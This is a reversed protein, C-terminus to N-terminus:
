IIFINEVAVLNGKLHRSHVGYGDRAVLVVPLKQGGLNNKAPNAGSIANVSRVTLQIRRNANVLNNCIALLAVPAARNLI